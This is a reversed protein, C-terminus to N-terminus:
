DEYSKEVTQVPMLVVNYFLDEEGEFSCPGVDSTMKIKIEKSEFHNLVAILNRTRFSIKRIDGDYTIAIKELVEGTNEINASCDIFNKDESIFLDTCSEADNNVTSIRNLARSIDSKNVTLTSHGEQIRQLFNMYDPFEYNVVLPISLIENNDNKFFITNNAFNLEIDTNSLWKNLPTLYPKQILVGPEPLHDQLQENIISYMAFLHGNLGCIDIKGDRRTIYLCSLADMMTTDDNICFSIRDIVEKIMEGSWYVPLSTPFPKVEQFWNLSMIPLKCVGSSHRLTVFGDGENYTMEIDGKCTSVLGQFIQGQIGIFGPEAVECPYTGTFELNSDTSFLTVAGDEAKLWLCRLAAAGSKSPIISIAKQIGTFIKEKAFTIRM